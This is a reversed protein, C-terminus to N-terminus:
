RGPTEKAIAQQYYTLSKRLADENRLGWLHRARLYLDYAEPDVVHRRAFSAHEQESITAHVGDAISRALESQLTLADGLDRDYRNAWLHQDAKAEILQATLRIRSGNRIVSGEVVADAGLARAIEPLSSTSRKFRLASQYSIVRMTGISALDTTLAETLGEAFCDDEVRASLSRFPLVAVSRL